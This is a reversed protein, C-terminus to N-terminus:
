KELSAVFQAVAEVTITQQEIRLISATGDGSQLGYDGFQAHNGGEIRIFQADAPYLKTSSAITEAGMDESGYISLVPLTATALSTNETGYSGFLILGDIQNIHNYAYIHAMAGGLSHGGILNLDYDPYAALIDDAENSAFFAFNLPMHPTVVLIGQSAIQNLLPAYAEAPVRAGPYYIFLAQPEVEAPTFIIWKEETNETVTVKNSSELDQQISQPLDYANLGWNVFWLVGAVILTDIIVFAFLLKRKNSKM